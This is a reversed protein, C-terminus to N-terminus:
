YGYTYLGQEARVDYAQKILERKSKSEKISSDYLKAQILNLQEETPIFSTDDDMWLKNDLLLLTDTDFNYSVVDTGIDDILFAIDSYTDEQDYKVTCNTLFNKFQENTIENTPNVAVTKM